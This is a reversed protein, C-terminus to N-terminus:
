RGLQGTKAVASLGANLVVTDAKGARVADDVLELAIDARKRAVGVKDLGVETPRRIMNAVEIIPANSM